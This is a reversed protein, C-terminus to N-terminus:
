RGPRLREIWRHLLHTQGYTWLNTALFYLLLGIPVPFFLGGILVGFPALVPMLRMVTAMQAAVPSDNTSGAGAAHEAQRRMSLRLSLFLAIGALLMLPVGVAYMHLHDTGQRLLDGSSQDVWAGLKAGLLDSDLFSTVGSHDFVLNREAGPHFGRLVGYLSLFVPIQVLAPLCGATMSSGHAAHLKRVEETLRQRDHGYKTRLARLQPALQQSRRGARLQALAPRLLAARATFVLFFVALAWAVGNDPGLVAGFATHWVWLVASVPYLFVDFVSM